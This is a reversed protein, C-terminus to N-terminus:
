NFVKSLCIILMRGPYTTLSDLISRTTHLMKKMSCEGQKVESGLTNPKNSMNLVGKLVPFEGDLAEKNM